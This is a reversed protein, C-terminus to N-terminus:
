MVSSHLFQSEISSLWSESGPIQMTCLPLLPHQTYEYVFGYVISWCRSETSLSSPLISFILSFRMIKTPAELRKVSQHGVTGQGSSKYQFATKQVLYKHEKKLVDNRINLMQTTKRLDLSPFTSPLLILCIVERHGELGQNRM